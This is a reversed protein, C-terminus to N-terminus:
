RARDLLRTAQEALSRVGRPAPEGALLVGVNQTPEPDDGVPLRQGHATLQEEDAATSLRELQGVDEPPGRGAFEDHVLPQPSRHERGHDPCELQDRGPHIARGDVEGAALLLLEGVQRVGCHALGDDIGHHVPVVPYRALDVDLVRRGPERHRRGAREDTAHGGVVHQGGRGPRAVRIQGVRHPGEIEGLRGTDADVPHVRRHRADAV